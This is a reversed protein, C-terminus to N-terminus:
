SYQININVMVSHSLSELEAITGTLQAELQRIQEVQRQIDFDREEVKAIQHQLELERQSLIHNRDKLALNSETLQEELRRIHDDRRRIEDDRTRIDTGQRNIEADRQLLLRDRDTVTARLDTVATDLTQIQRRLEDDTMKLYHITRLRAGLQTYAARLKDRGSSGINSEFLPTLGQPLTAGVGIVGLGYSHVFEFSPYVASLEAWLKFVGFGRDRVNTDHFLVIARDSLKNRWTDFDHRVDEFFHRGDIHLLDISNDEFTAVAEDFNMRLLQSFGSYLPDHYKRLEEIVDEDYFGSHEDGRWSDVAYCRTGVNLRDVAQCFACYSVGSQTGLEVFLRPRMVDILWFAFPAHELWASPAMRLPEWFSAGSLCQTWQQQEMEVFESLTPKGEMM